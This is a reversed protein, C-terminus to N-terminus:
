NRVFLEKFHAHRNEIQMGISNYSVQMIAFDSRVHDPRPVGERVPIQASSGSALRAEVERSLVWDIFRQANELHPADRQISVTNPILLTGLPSDAGEAPEQDPYVIAVPFGKERAVNYDDTDTWAWALQGSEVLQRTRSNSQCVNVPPDDTRSGEAITRLYREAQQEGIEDYLAAAHTLTTGTLPAAMGVKGAWQPDLLDWMGSIVSPDPVLDTNVILCRARAAFGTWRRDPDRFQEPIDAASPSDYVQLLGRQALRVTQAVENNWFVDCRAHGKSEEILRRVLGVTKSAETDYEALVNLGSEREFEQILAQSHDMDLAVYLVLDPQPGCGALTWTLSSLLLLPQRAAPTM